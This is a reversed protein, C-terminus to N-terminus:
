QIDTLLHHDESQRYRIRIVPDLIPGSLFLPASKNRGDGDKLTLSLPISLGTEFNYTGYSSFDLPDGSCSFSRFAFFEGAQALTINFSKINQSSLETGEYGNHRFYETLNKQFRSNVIRGNNIGVMLNGKSNQLVQSIRYASLEYDFDINLIGSFGYDARLEESLRGLDFDKVGGKITIFPYDRNFYAQLELRYSANYGDLNFDEVQLSGNQMSASLNFNSLATKETLALRNARMELTVNNNIVFESEPKQLFFIEDYGKQRDIYADEFFKTIGRAALGAILPMQIAASTIKVTSSSKLPIFSDLSSTLSINFDSGENTFTTNFNMTRNNISASATCNSVVDIDSGKRSRSIGFNELKGEFGVISNRDNKYDLYFDGKISAKGRYSIDKGPTIYNTLGSLDITSAKIKLSIKKESPNDYKKGSLTINMNDDYLHLLGIDLRESSPSYQIDLDANFNGNSVMEYQEPGTSTVTLNITKTEGKFSFVPGKIDLSTLTSLGGTLFIDNRFYEAVHSNFISLDLNKVKIKHHSAAEDNLLFFGEIDLEGETTNPTKYGTTNGKLIYSIKDANKM